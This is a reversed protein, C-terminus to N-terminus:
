TKKEKKLWNNYNISKWQYQWEELNYFSNAFSTWILKMLNKCYIYISDHGAKRMGSKYGGM